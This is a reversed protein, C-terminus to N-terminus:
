ICMFIRVYKCAYISENINALKNFSLINRKQSSFVVKSVSILTVDIVKFSEEQNLKLHIKFYNLEILLVM